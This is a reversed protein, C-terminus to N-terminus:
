RGQAAMWSSARFGDSRPWCQRLFKSKMCGWTERHRLGNWKVCLRVWQVYAKETRLNYYKNCILERIQNLFKKAHLVPYAASKM